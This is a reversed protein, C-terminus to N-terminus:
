KLNFEPSTLIVLWRERDSVAEALRWATTDGLVGDLYLRAADLAPPLSPVADLLENIFNFRALMMSPSIWRANGPWGAVNPPQFLLEGAAEGYNTMLEVSERAPAGLAAAAGVMFEVPSRVLSRYSHPDLFESSTLAARMLAKFDHNAGRFKGAIARVTDERPAPAIFQAAVKRSLFSSAAPQALIQDVVGALGLRGRRGLYRVEGQYAMEAEFSGSMQEYWVDTTERAGTSEDVVVEVQADPPPTTWGALARAASKVDAEVYNGPGLTFLEMLERAYNENPPQTPDSADSGALDLYVLMAPDTSVERLTRGFDALALRRWTLNQWYLFLADVKDLSSTFHGHWFYTMREAFPTPTSLM